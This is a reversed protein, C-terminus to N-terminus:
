PGKGRSWSLQQNREREGISSFARIAALLRKAALGTGPQPLLPLMKPM